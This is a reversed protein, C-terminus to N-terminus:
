NGTGSGSIVFENKSFRASLNGYGIKDPYCGILKSQYLKQRWLLLGELNIEPLAAPIWDYNFKIYGEDPKNSM